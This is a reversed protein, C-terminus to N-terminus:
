HYLRENKPPLFSNMKMLLSIRRLQRTFSTNMMETLYKEKKLSKKFRKNIKNWHRLKDDWEQPLESIYM